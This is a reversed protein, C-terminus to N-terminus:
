LTCCKTDLFTVLHKVRNYIIIEIEILGCEIHNEKTRKVNTVLLIGSGQTNKKKKGEKLIFIINDSM